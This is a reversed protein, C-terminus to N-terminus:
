ILLHRSTLVSNKLESPTHKFEKSSLYLCTGLKSMQASNKQLISFLFAMFCFLGEFFLM